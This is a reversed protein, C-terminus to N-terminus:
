LGMIFCIHSIHQVYMFEWTHLICLVNMITWFPIHIKLSIQLQAPHIGMCKICLDNLLHLSHENTSQHRSGAYGRQRCTLGKYVTSLLSLTTSSSCLVLFRHSKSTWDNTLQLCNSVLLAMTFSLSKVSQAIFALIAPTHVRFRHCKAPGPGAM